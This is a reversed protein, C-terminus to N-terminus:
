FKYVLSTILKVDNNKRGPAPEGDYTDQLVGRLSLKETLSAEAGIEFNIIYNGWRDIQPMYEVSQWMKARASFKHEFREALRLAIYENKEDGQKEAVFSPGAEFALQTTPNKIAYYGALPSFTIRYKVDAIRDHLGSLRAGGYFEENFLHNYQGFAQVNAATADTDDKLIFTGDAKREPQETTQEGYTGSAGLLVEDRPWKRSSNLSLTGLLTESNGRTLTLGAAASTEWQNTNAASLSLGSLLLAGAALNPIRTGQHKKM